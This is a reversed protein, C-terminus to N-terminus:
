ISIDSRDGSVFVFSGDGEVAMNRFGCTTFIEIDYGISMTNSLFQIKSFFRLRLRRHKM